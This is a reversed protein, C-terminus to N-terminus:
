ICPTSFNLFFNQRWLTLCGKKELEFGSAEGASTEQKRGVCCKKICSPRQNNKEGTLSATQGEVKLKLCLFLWGESPTADSHIIKWFEKLSAWSDVDQCLRINCICAMSCTLWRPDSKVKCTPLCECNKTRIALMCYPMSGWKLPSVSLQRLCSGHLHTCNLLSAM